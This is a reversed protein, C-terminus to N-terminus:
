PHRGPTRNPLRSLSGLLMGCAAAECLASHRAPMAKRDGTPYIAARCAIAGAPPGAQFDGKLRGM